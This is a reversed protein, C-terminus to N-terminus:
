ITDIWQYNPHAGLPGNFRTVWSENVFFNMSWQDRNM